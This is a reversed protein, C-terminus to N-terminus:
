RRGGVHPALSSARVLSVLIAMNMHCSYSHHGLPFRRRAVMGEAEFVDPTTHALGSDAGIPV